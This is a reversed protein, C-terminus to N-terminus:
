TEAHDIRRFYLCTLNMPCNACLPNKNCYEKGLEVIQAHFDKYLKVDKPINTEVLKQLEDYDTEKIGFIRSFERKTYADIVFIPKESAYLIISDATEKGVGNLNLLKERLEKIDISLFNDLNGYNNLIFNCISKLRNAKQKYFGSPRVLEELDSINCNSIKEINLMNNEKLNKIAKDVNKWSTQQTLIAGVLIEFKTEGPWWNLFGFKHYLINYMLLFDTNNKKLYVKKEGTIWVM